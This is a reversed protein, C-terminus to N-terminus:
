LVRFLLRSPGPGRGHGYIPMIVSMKLNLLPTTYTISKLTKKTRSISEKHKFPELFYDQHGLAVGM